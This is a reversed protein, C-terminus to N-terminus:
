RYFAARLRDLERTLQEGLYLMLGVDEGGISNGVDMLRRVLLRSASTVDSIRDEM